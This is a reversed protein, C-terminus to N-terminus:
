VGFKQFNLLIVKEGALSFEEDMCHVGRQLIRFKTSSIRMTNRVCWDDTKKLVNEFNKNIKTTQLYGFFASDDALFILDSKAVFNLVM